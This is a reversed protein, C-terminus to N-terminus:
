IFLCRDIWVSHQCQFCASVVHARPRENIVCHKRMAYAVCHSGKWDLSKSALNSEVVKTYRWLGQGHVIKSYFYVFVELGIVTWSQKYSPYHNASSACKMGLDYLRQFNLPVYHLSKSVELTDENKEPCLGQIKQVPCSSVLLKRIPIKLQHKWLKTNARTERLTAVVRLVDSWSKKADRTWRWSSSACRPPTSASMYQLVPLRFSNFSFLLDVICRVHSCKCDFM